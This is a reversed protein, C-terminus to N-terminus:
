VDIEVLVRPATHSQLLIMETERSRLSDTSLKISQLLSRKETEENPKYLSSSCNTLKDYASQTGVLYERESNIREQLIGRVTDISPCAKIKL